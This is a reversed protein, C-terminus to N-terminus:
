KEEVSLWIECYFDERDVEASPYVEICMGGAPQYSSSPFFETYIKKWLEQFAEPMKGTCPFVAWTGAPVQELTLGPAVPGKEYPAGIAYDFGGDRCEAFSIGLIGSHLADRGDLYSALRDITGDRMCEAWTAHIQGSAIEGCTEYSAKKAIVQFAEKREIRYDMMNGGELVLKVSVRSFSKISRDGHKVQSPTVGHFRTFARCFSEPSSYGYKLAIDVVKEQGSALDNGARSLRRARIYEGVTYGCVMHFIRQFHFSSSYAQRAIERYDIDECLHDEMYDIARQLGQIWEM